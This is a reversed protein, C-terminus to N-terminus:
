SNFAECKSGRLKLLLSAAVNGSLRAHSPSDAMARIEGNFYEYREEANKDLEIYEEITLKHTPMMTTEEGEMKM